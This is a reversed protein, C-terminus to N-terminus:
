KIRALVNEEPNLSIPVGAIRTMQNILDDLKKSSEAAMDLFPRQEESVPGFYQGILIDVSGMIVTLPQRLEQGLEAMLILLERRTLDANDPRGAPIMVIRKLTEMQAEARIATQKLAKNMEVLINEVLRPLAGDGPETDRLQQLLESLPTEPQSTEDAPLAAPTAAAGDGGGLSGSGAGAGLGAGAGDDAGAKGGGDSAGAKGIGNTEGFAGASLNELIEVPFGIGTLRSRLEDQDEGRRKARKIHRGLKKEKDAMEGRLKMYQAVLGDVALDEVLEKVRAALMQVAQIDAGLRQLRDAVDTEVNKIMKKIAKRGKQTRNAPSDLLGDSMRQLRAITQQTLAAPGFRDASDPPAALKSLEAIVNENNLDAKQLVAGDQTGVEDSNLMNCVAAAVTADLGPETVVEKNVVAEDEMVRKYSYGATHIRTLGSASLLGAFGNAKKVQNEKLFLMKVFTQVDADTIGTQFSLTNAGLNALCKALAITSAIPPGLTVGEMQFDNDVVALNLEGHRAEFTKLAQAADAVSQLAVKHELGYFRGNALAFALWRVVTFADENKTTKEIPKENM